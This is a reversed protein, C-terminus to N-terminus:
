PEGLKDGFFKNSQAVAEARPTDTPLCMAPSGPPHSGQEMIGLQEARSESQELSVNVHWNLLRAQQLASRVTARMQPDVRSQDELQRIDAWAKQEDRELLTLERLQVYLRGFEIQETESLLAARGSQSAADWGASILVEVM